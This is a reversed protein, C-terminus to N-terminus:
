NDTRRRKADRESEGESEPPPDAEFLSDYRTRIENVAELINPLRQKWIQIDGADKTELLNASFAMTTETLMEEVESALKENNDDIPMRSLGAQIAMLVNQGQGIKFMMELLETDITGDREEISNVVVEDTSDGVVEWDSVASGFSDDDRDGHQPDSQSQSVEYEGESSM